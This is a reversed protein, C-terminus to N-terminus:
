LDLAAGGLRAGGPEVDQLAALPAHLQRSRSARELPNHTSDPLREIAVTAALIGSEAAYRAVTRSRLSTLLAAEARPRSAVEALIVGLLVLLWLVFILAVGRQDHRTAM